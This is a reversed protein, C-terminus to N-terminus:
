RLRNNASACSLCIGINYAKYSYYYTLLVSGKSTNLQSFGPCIIPTCMILHKFFDTPASIYHDMYIIYIYIHNMAGREKYSHKHNLLRPDQIEIFQVYIYTGYLYRGKVCLQMVFYTKTHHTFM